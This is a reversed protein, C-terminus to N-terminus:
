FFATSVDLWYTRIIAAYTNYQVQAFYSLFHESEVKLDSIEPKQFLFDKYQYYEFRLGLGFRFNKYWVDQRKYVDLHTYSVPMYNYILKARNYYVDDKKQAVSLAKDM